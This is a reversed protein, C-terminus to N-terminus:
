SMTVTNFTSIVSSSLHISWTIIVFRVITCDCLGLWVAESAHGPHLGQIAEMAFCTQAATFYSSTVVVVVVVVVVVIFIEFNNHTAYSREAVTSAFLCGGTENQIPSFDKDIYHM